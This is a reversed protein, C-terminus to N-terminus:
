ITQKKNAIGDILQQEDSLHEIVTVTSVVTVTMLCGESLAQFKQILLVLFGPLKPLM